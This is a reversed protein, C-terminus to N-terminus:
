RALFSPFIFSSIRIDFIRFLCWSKFNWNRFGFSAKNPVEIKLMLVKVDIFVRHAPFHPNLLGTRTLGDAFRACVRTQITISSNSGRPRQRKRPGVAGRPGFRAPLAPPRSAAGRNRKILSRADMQFRHVDTVGARSANWQYRGQLQGVAALIDGLV